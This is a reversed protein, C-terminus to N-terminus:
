VCTERSGSGETFCSESPLATDLPHSMVLDIIMEFTSLDQINM